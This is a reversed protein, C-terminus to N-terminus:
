HHNFAIADRSNESIFSICKLIHTKTTTKFTNFGIVGITVTVILMAKKINKGM